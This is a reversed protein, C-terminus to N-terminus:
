ELEVKEAGADVAAEFIQALAPHEDSHTVEFDEPLSLVALLMAYTDNVLNEAGEHLTAIGSKHAVALSLGMDNAAKFEDWEPVKVTAIVLDCLVEVKTNFDTM